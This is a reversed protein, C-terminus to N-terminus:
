FHVMCNNQFINVECVKLVHYKDTSQGVGSNVALTWGLPLTLTLSLSLTSTLTLTLNLTLTLTLTLMLRLLFLEPAPSIIPL